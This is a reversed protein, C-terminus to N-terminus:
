STLPEIRSIKVPVKEKYKGPKKRMETRTELWGSVPQSSHKIV